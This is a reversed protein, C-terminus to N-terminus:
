GNNEKVFKLIDFACQEAPTMLRDGKVPIKFNCTVNVQGDEKDSIDITIKNKMNIKERMLTLILTM